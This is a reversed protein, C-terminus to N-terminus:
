RSLFRVNKKRWQLKLDPVGDVKHQFRHQAVSALSFLSELSTSLAGPILAALKLAGNIGSIEYHQSLFVLREGLSLM